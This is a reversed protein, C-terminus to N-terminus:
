NKKIRKKKYTKMTKINNKMKSKNVNNKKLKEKNIKSKYYTKM